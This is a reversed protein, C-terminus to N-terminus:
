PSIRHWLLLGLRQLSLALDKLQQAVPSSRDQTRLETEKRRIKPYTSSEKKVGSPLISESDKCHQQSLM